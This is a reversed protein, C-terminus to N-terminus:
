LVDALAGKLGMGHTTHDMGFYFHLKERNDRLNICFNIESRLFTM